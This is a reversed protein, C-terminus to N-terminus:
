DLREISGSYDNIADIEEKTPALKSLGAFTDHGMISSDINKIMNRLGDWTIKNIKLIRAVPIQIQDVRKENEILSILKKPSDSSNESVLTQIKRMSKTAKDEFLSEIDDFSNNKEQFFEVKSKEVQSWISSEVFMPNIKEWM